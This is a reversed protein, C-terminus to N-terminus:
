DAKKKAPSAVAKKRGPIPSSADSAAQKSARAAAEAAALRPLTRLLLRCALDLLVAVVPVLVWSNKVLYFSAFLSWLVIRIPLRAPAPAAFGLAWWAVAYFAALFLIQNGQVPGHVRCLLGCVCLGVLCITMKM